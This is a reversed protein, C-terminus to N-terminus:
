TPRASLAMSPLGKGSPIHRVVLDNTAIGM